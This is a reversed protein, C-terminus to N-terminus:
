ILLKAAEDQLGLSLFHFIVILNLIINFNIEELKQPMSCFPLVCSQRLLVLEQLRCSRSWVTNTDTVRRILNSTYDM